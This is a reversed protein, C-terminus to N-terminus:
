RKRFEVILDLADEKSINFVIALATSATFANEDEEEMYKSCNGLATQMNITRNEM